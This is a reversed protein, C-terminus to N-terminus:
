IVNNYNIIFACDYQMCIFCLYVDALAECIMSPCVCFSVDLEVAM